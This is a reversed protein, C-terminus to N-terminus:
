DEWIMDIIHLPVMAPWLASYVIADHISEWDSLEYLEGSEWFAWTLLLLYAPIGAIWIDLIINM